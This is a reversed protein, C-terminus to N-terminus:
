LWLSILQLDEAGTDLIFIIHIHLMITNVHVKHGPIDAPLM